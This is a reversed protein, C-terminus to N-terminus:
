TKNDAIKAAKKHNKTIAALIAFFMIASWIDGGIARGVWILIKLKALKGINPEIQGEQPNLRIWHTM